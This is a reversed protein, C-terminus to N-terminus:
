PERRSAHHPPHDEPPDLNELVDKGAEDYVLATRTDAVDPWTTIRELTFTRLHDVTPVGVEILFDDAGTVMWVRLTEPAELVATYFARLSETTKPQMRVSVLARIPRGLAELAIEAHWGKIIGRHELSRIRDLCTSEAIGATRALEKNTTRANKQVLQVLLADVASLASSGAM